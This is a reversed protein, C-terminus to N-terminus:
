ARGDEPRYGVMEDTRRLLDNYDGSRIYAAATSGTPSFETMLEAVQDSAQVAATRVTALILQELEEHSLERMVRPLLRLRVLQGRADVTARVRDDASAATVQLSTMRQQLQALGDRVREYSGQIEAFRAKLGRNADRSAYEPM